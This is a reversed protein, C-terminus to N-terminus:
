RSVSDVDCSWVSKETEMRHRLILSTVNYAKLPRWLAFSGLIWMSIESADLWVFCYMSASEVNYVYMHVSKYLTHRILQHINTQSLGGKMEMQRWIEIWTWTYLRSGDWKAKSQLSYVMHNFAQSAWGAISEFQWRTTVQQGSMGKFSADSRMLSDLVLSCAFEVSDKIWYIWHGNSTERFGLLWLTKCVNDCSCRMRPRPIVIITTKKMWSDFKSDVTCTQHLYIYIYHSFCIMCWINYMMFMVCWMIFIAGWGKITHKRYWFNVSRIVSQISYINWQLHHEINYLFWIFWSWTYLVANSLIM